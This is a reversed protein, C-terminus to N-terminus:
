LIWQYRVLTLTYVILSSIIKQLHRWFSLPALPLGCPGPPGPLLCLGALFDALHLKVLCHNVLTKLFQFNNSITKKSLKELEFKEAILLSIAKFLLICCFSVIFSGIFLIILHVLLPKFLQIIDHFLM